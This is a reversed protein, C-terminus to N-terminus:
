FLAAFLCYCAFSDLSPSHPSLTLFPLTFLSSILKSSSSAVAQLHRMSLSTLQSKTAALHRTFPPLSPPHISSLTPFLIPSLPLSIAQATQPQIRRAM